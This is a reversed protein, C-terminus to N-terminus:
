RHGKPAYRTASIRLGAIMGHFISAAARPRGRLVLHLAWLSRVTLMPLLAPRLSRHIRYLIVRSRTAHFYTVLSKAEGAESTSAGGFHAVSLRNTTSVDLNNRLRFDIEECYLFYAECLGGASKWTVASVIALHGGAFELRGLRRFLYTTPLQRTRGSWRRLQGLGSTEAGDHGLTPVGLVASQNELAELAALRLSGGLITTDPNAIVVVDVGRTAFAEYARNNGAAYGLNEGYDSIAISVSTAVRDAILRLRLFETEDCSNDVISVLITAGDSHAVISEILDSVRSATFFNVILIGVRVPSTAQPSRAGFSEVQGSPSERAATM